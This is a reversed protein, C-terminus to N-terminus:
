WIYHLKDDNLMVFILIIFEWGHFVMVMRWEMRRGV